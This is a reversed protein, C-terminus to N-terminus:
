LIVPLLSINMLSIGFGAEGNTSVTFVAGYNSRGFPVRVVGVATLLPDLVDLGGDGLSRVLATPLSVILKGGLVTNLVPVRRYHVGGIGVIPDFISVTVGSFNANTKGWQDTWDLSVHQGPYVAADVFSQTLSEGRARREYEASLQYTRQTNRYEVLAPDVNRAFVLGGTRLDVIRISVGGKVESIWIATKAPQGSGRSQEDLRIVEDLGVPGSQLRMQGDEVWARPAM